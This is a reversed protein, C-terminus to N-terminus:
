DYKRAIERDEDIDIKVFIFDNMVEIVETKSWVDADMKKCPGCWTAWIDVLIVKGKFKSIISYFLDENNVEGTANVTYGTKQKNKEIQAILNTNRKLLETLLSPYIQNSMETIEDKSIPVFNTLQIGYKQAVSLQFFIGRDTGFVESFVKQANPMSNAWRLLYIQTYFLSSTNLSKCENLCKYFDIPVDIKKERFYAQAAEDDLKNNAVYASKMMSPCAVLCYVFSLDVGTRLIQRYANGIPLSQIEALKKAYKNLFYAKCEELTKENLDEMLTNDYSVLNIDYGTEAIETNVAAMYGGFCATKGQKPEDKRLRSQRRAFEQLNVYVKSEEGPAVCVAINMKGVFLDVTTPILTEIELKFNGNQEIKLPIDRYECSLVDGISVKTQMDGRYGLLRGSIIAKGSKIETTPLPANFDLQQNVIEKPLQVKPLKKGKLQIGWIEFCDNCDSEIFDFSKVSSPM